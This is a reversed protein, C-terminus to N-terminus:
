RVNPSDYRYFQGNIPYELFLFTLIPHQQILPIKDSSITMIACGEGKFWNGNKTYHLHVEEVDGFQKLYNRVEGKYSVPYGIQEINGIHVKYVMRTSLLITKHVTINRKQICFPKSLAEDRAYEDEFGIEICMRTIRPEERAYTIPLKIIVKGRPFQNRLIDLFSTPGERRFRLGSFESEAILISNPKTGQYLDPEPCEDKIIFPIGEVPQSM